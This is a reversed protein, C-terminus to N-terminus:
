SPFTIKSKQVYHIPHYNQKSKRLNPKGLDQERNIFVYSEGMHELSASFQQALIQYVGVFESNGKEIHIVITTPNLPEAITYAVLKEDVFVAGGQLHLTDWREFLELIGANEQDLSVDDECSRFDCWEEQMHLLSQILDADIPRYAWNYRNKFKNLKKRVNQYRKGAFQALDERRYVYDWNDRDERIECIIGSISIQEKLTDPVRHLEIAIGLDRTIKLVDNLIEVSNSGIPPFFVLADSDNLSILVLTSHVEKWHFKYHERWM